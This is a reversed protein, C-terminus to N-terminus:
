RLIVATGSVLCVKKTGNELHIVKIQPASASGDHLTEPKSVIDGSQLLQYSSTDNTNNCKATIEISQKGSSTSNCATIGLLAITTLLINKM